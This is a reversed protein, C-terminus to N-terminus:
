QQPPDFLKTTSETVSPPPEVIEGTQRARVNVPTPAPPMAQYPAQHPMQHNVPPMQPPQQSAQAQQKATVYEAVGKGIFTFAPILMWFWWIRGAPAFGLVALSVFIFGIGMFIKNIGGALSAPEDEERKKGTKTMPAPPLNGTLAQPVLALNAGCARCFKPDDRHATACNPCYM